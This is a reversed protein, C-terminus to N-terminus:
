TLVLWAAIVFCILGAYFLARSQLNRYRGPCLRRYEKLVKRTSRFSYEFDTIQENEPKKSNIEDVMRLISLGCWVWFVAVLTLLFIAVIPHWIPDM